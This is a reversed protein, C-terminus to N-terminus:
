AGWGEIIPTEFKKSEGMRRGTGEDSDAAQYAERARKNDEVASALADTIDKGERALKRLEDKKHELIDAAEIAEVREDYETLAEAVAAEVAVADATAEAEVQKGSVFQALTDSIANLKEIVEDVNKTDKRETESETSHRYNEMVSEFRGGAGPAAVIDVSRYPDEGLFSEVIRNGDDDESSEALAYISVGLKKQYREIFAKHAPDPRFNGFIAGLGDSEEFWTEGVFEGAIDSLPRAWPKEPDLPHNMYSLSETFVAADRELLERSYYGSSGQGEQIIRVKITDSSKDAAVIAGHELIRIKM